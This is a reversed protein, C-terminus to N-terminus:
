LTLQTFDISKPITELLSEHLTYTDPGPDAVVTLSEFAPRGVPACILAGPTLVALPEAPGPMSYRSVLRELAAGAQAMAVPEVPRQWGHVHVSCIRRWREPVAVRGIDASRPLLEFLGEAEARAETVTLAAVPAHDLQHLYWSRMARRLYARVDIGDSRATVDAGAQSAELGLVRLWIALMDHETYTM